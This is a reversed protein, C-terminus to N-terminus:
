AATLEGFDIESQLAGRPESCKAEVEDPSAGTTGPIVIRGLYEPSEPDNDPRFVCQPFDPNLLSCMFGSDSRSIAITGMKGKHKARYPFASRLLREVRRVFLFDIAQISTQHRGWVSPFEEILESVRQLRQPDAMKISRVKRWVEDAVLETHVDEIKIAIADRHVHHIPLDELVKVLRKGYKEDLTKSLIPKNSKKEPSAKKLESDFEQAQKNLASKFDGGDLENRGNPNCVMSRYGTESVWGGVAGGLVGAFVGKKIEIAAVVPLVDGGDEYDCPVSPPIAANTKVKTPKEVKALKRAQALLEEVSSEDGLWFGGVRNDDFEVDLYGHSSVRIECDEIKYRFPDGESRYVLASLADAAARPLVIYSVDLESIKKLARIVRLLDGSEIAAQRCAELMGAYRLLVAELRKEIKDVSKAPDQQGNLVVERCRALASNKVAEPSDMRNESVMQLVGIRGSEERYFQECKGIVRLSGRHTVTRDFFATPPVISWNALSRGDITTYALDALPNTLIGNGIHRIGFLWEDRGAEASKLWVNWYDGNPAPFPGAVDFVTRQPRAISEDNWIAGIPCFDTPDPNSSNIWMGIVMSAMAAPRCITFLQDSEDSISDLLLEDSHNM